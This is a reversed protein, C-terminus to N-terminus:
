FNIMNRMMIMIIIKMMITMMINLMILIMIKIMNRMMTWIMNRMMIGRTVSSIWYCCYCFFPAQHDHCIRPIKAMPFYLNHHDHYIRRIMAVAFLTGSPWSRDKPDQGHCFPHRITMASGESRPLPLFPTQHDHGIWQIKGHCFCSPINITRIWLSGWNFKNFHEMTYIHLFPAWSDGWSNLSMIYYRKTDSM